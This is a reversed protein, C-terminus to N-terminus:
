RIGGEDSLIFTIEEDIYKSLISVLNFDGVYFFDPEKPYSSQRFGLDTALKGYFLRSRNESVIQCHVNIRWEGHYIFSLIDEDGIWIFGKKDSYRSRFTDGLTITGKAQYIM